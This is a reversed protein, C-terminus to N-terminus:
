KKYLGDYYGGLNFRLYKELETDNNLFDKLWKPMAWYFEDTPLYKRFKRNVM